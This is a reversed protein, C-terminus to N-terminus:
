SPGKDAESCWAPERQLGLVLGNGRGSLRETLNGPERGGACPLWCKVIQELLRIRVDIERRAVRRTRKVEPQRLVREVEPQRLVRKVEAGEEPAPTQPSMWPLDLIWRGRKGKRHCYFEISREDLLLQWTEKREVTKGNMERELERWTFPIIDYLDLLISGILQRQGAPLLRALRKASRPYLKFWIYPPAPPDKPEISTKAYKSPVKVLTVWRGRAQAENEVRIAGLERLRGLALDYTKSDSDANLRRRLQFSRVSRKQSRLFDVIRVCMQDISDLDPRKIRPRRSQPTATSCEWHTSPEEFRDGAAVAPASSQPVPATRDGAKIGDAVLHVAEPDPRRGM